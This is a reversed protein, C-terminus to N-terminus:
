FFFFYLDALCVCHPDRLEIKSLNHRRQLGDSATALLYIFLQGLFCLPLVLVVTHGKKIKTQINM